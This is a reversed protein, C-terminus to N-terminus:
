LIKEDMIKNFKVLIFYWNGTNSELNSIKEKYFSSYNKVIKLSNEINLKKIIIFNKDFEKSNLAVLFQKFNMKTYILSICM